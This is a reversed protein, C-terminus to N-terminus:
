FIETFIDVYIWGGEAGGFGGCFRRGEGGDFGGGNSSKSACVRFSEVFTGTSKENDHEFLETFRTSKITDDNVFNYQKSDVHSAKGSPVVHAIM